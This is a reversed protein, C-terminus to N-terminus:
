DIDYIYCLKTLVKFFKSLMLRNVRYGIKNINVDFLM